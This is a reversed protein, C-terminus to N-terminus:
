IVKLFDKFRMEEKGDSKVRKLDYNKGLILCAQEWTFAVPEWRARRNSFRMYVKETNM